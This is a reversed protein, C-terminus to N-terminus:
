NRALLDTKKAQFEQETLLGEDRLTGLMRILEGIAPDPMNKPARRPLQTAPEVSAVRPSFDYSCHPCLTSWTPVRLNCGLCRKTPNPARDGDSARQETLPAAGAHNQKSLPRVLTDLGRDPPRKSATTNTILYIVAVVIPVILSLPDFALEIVFTHLGRLLSRTPNGTFFPSLGRLLPWAVALFFWPLWARGNRSAHWVIFLAPVFHLAAILSLKLLPDM